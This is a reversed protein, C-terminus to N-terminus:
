LLYWVLCSTDFEPGEETFLVGIVDGIGTLFITAGMSIPIRAENKDIRFQLCSITM